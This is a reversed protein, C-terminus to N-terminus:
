NRGTGIISFRTKVFGRAGLLITDYTLVIMTTMMDKVLSSISIANEHFNLLLNESYLMEIQLPM